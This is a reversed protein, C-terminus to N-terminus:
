NMSHVRMSVDNWDVITSLDSFVLTGYPAEGSLPTLKGLLPMSTKCNQYSSHCIKDYDDYSAQHNTIAVLFYGNSRGWQHDQKPLFSATTTYRSPTNM